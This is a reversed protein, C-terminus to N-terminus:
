QRSRGKKIDRLTDILMKTARLNGSVSRNVLQAIVAERKTVQRRSGTRLGDGKRQSGSRATRGHKSPAVSPQRVPREQLPHEIAGLPLERRM